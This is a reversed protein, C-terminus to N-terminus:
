VAVGNEDPPYLQGMGPCQWAARVQPEEFSAGAFEHYIPLQQGLAVVELQLSLRPRFATPFLGALLLFLSRKSM